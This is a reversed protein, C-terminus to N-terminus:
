NVAELVTAKGDHDGTTNDGNQLINQMDFAKDIKYSGSGALAKAFDDRARNFSVYVHAIYPATSIIDVKERSFGASFYFAGNYNYPGFIRGHDNETLFLGDSFAFGSSSIGIPGLYEKNFLGTYDYSHMKSLFFNTKKVTNLLRETAAASNKSVSDIVIVNIPEILNKGQYPIGLWYAVTSPQNNGDVHIMWKGLELGPAFAVKETVQPLSGPNVATLYFNIKTAPRQNLWVIGVLVILVIAAVIIGLRKM